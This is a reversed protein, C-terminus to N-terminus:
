NFKERINEYKKNQETLRTEFRREVNDRENELYAIV